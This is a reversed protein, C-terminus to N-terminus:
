PRRRRADATVRKAFADATAVVWAEVGADPLVSDPTYAVRASHNAVKAIGGGIIRIQFMEDRALLVPVVLARTRVALVKEIAATTHTPDYHAM